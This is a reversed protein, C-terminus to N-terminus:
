IPSLPSHFHLCSRLVVDARVAVVPLDLTLACGPRRLDEVVLGVGHVEAPLDGLLLLGALEDYM